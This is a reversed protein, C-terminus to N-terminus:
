NIAYGQERWNTRGNLYDTPFSFGVKGIGWLKRGIYRKM